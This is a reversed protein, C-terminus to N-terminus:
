PLRFFRNDFAGATHNGVEVMGAQLILAELADPSSGAKRLWM